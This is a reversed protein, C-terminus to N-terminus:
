GRNRNIEKVLKAADESTMIPQMLEFAKVYDGSQIAAVARSLANGGDKKLLQLLQQGAKSQLVAKVEAETFGSKKNPDM